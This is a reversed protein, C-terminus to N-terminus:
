SEVFSSLVQTQFGGSVNHKERGAWGLSIYAVWAFDASIWVRKFYLMTAPKRESKISM